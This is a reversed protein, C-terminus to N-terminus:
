LGNKGGSLTMKMASKKWKPSLRMNRRVLMRQFPERLGRIWNPKKIYYSFNREDKSLVLIVSIYKVWNKESMVLFLIVLFDKLILCLDYIVDLQLNKANKDKKDKHSNKCIM